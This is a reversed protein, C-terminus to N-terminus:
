PSEVKSEYHMNLLEALIDFHRCLTEINVQISLDFFITKWIRCYSLVRNRWKLEEDKQPHFICIMELWGEILPKLGETDEKPLKVLIQFLQDFSELHSPDGFLSGL